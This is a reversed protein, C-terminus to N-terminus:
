QKYFYVNDVYLTGGGAPLGSFILQALKSTGSLGAFDSLPIDYSVWQGQAPNEFVLEHESDDGGQFAGDAGFDVLKIRFTTMNPTWIDVRFHTMSSANILNAGTTEIGVFDLETYKKVDDGQIQIDELTVMSWDTRWTNVAVNTYADSFMSIVNAASQTPTPAPATPEDGGGGATYFYINDVFVTTAGTPQGVLIYQAINARTTLGTFDDLPIDLSVWDGQMPMEFNIQHEVDDGGGFAGDAGFDVLKIGFFTFDASWIDMRFHTMGSADITNAVTEVGVFDLMSYKKAANGDVTVDEFTAASWDTRWTDVPVDTYADSFLSIVDAANQMPTPAATTPENGGGGGAYFYINDLYINGNGDFKFQIVDALDVPNFDSLPIDVSAWGSTPVSLAYVTEVPGTSILFTNLASSNDTWYDIHLFDMGTVDLPSSLELGQYDLGSYLLTNNGAIDVESVVTAQGWDPNLNRDVDMYADSFVSIVDAQNKTPTPAAVAPGAPGTMGDNYFYINDVYISSITADSVFVVQALNSRGTLGALDSFPIDLSYWEGNVLNSDNLRIEGSSDDGTGFTNDPGVDAIRVILFDGPEVEERPQIDIHLRTMSSANITPVDVLFQIGVYNLDTYAIINDDKINIDDQGQTTSGGWYGNYYDVPENTYADSFISIVNAPDQTPTPAAAFDGTVTVKASGAAEVGGLTATIVAEGTTIATIVGQENVTAVSPDSSTFTFYSPSVTVTQDQGDGLNLTQKLGSVSTAVGAFTQISVEKGDFISPRPQAITGLKEFKLEDIWFSYGEGDEPGEAYWFLGSERTLRSPDPIAITYERWNTTLVLNNLTVQYKNERFDQGFGIENITGKKTAKAWFTLADFGSLDRGGYDPFIAGAYAGDPDGVNPVDFRMASSGDYVTEEDVSFAAFYSDGFPLYELGASFGDIFVDGNKPFTAPTAEDSLDRTCNSLLLVFGLLVLINLKM